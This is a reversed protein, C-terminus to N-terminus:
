SESRRLRRMWSSRTTPETRATEEVANRREDFPYIEWQDGMGYEGDRTAKVQWETASEL